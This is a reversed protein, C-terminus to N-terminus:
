NKNNNHLMWMYRISQPIWTDISVMKKEMHLVSIVECVACLTFGEGKRSKQVFNCKGGWSNNFKVCYKKNKSLAPESNDAM